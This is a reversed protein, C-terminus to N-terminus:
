PYRQPTSYYAGKGLNRVAAYYTYALVYCQDKRPDWWPLDGCVSKLNSLFRDDVYKRYTESRGRAYQPVNRYGFDHHNCPDKFNLLLPKDPSYSCGNNSWDPGSYARYYRAFFTTYPIATALYVTYDFNPWRAEQATIGSLGELQSQLQALEREVRAFEPQLVGQIEQLEGESLADIQEPTLAAIRELTWSPASTQSGCAALLLFLVLLAVRM